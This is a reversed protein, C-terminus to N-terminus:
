NKNYIKKLEENLINRYSELNIKEYEKNPKLWIIRRGIVKLNISHLANEYLSLQLKYVSLPMDLLDNFPQLLKQEKFNKYLDVNTKYDLILLGSKEDNKGDLEADYYFLIDFTGAYGANEYEVFVKTEALIPVICKPIEEFFKVIAEEKPNIAKFGGNETLRETFNPLIKDYQGTMYYFASEGFEHTMTGNTCAENSIKNWCELIDDVTMHYYKSTEKDFNRNFTETALKVQDIHEQFRHAVNSVCEMEKGNLFYKHGDEVFELGKFSNLIKNRIENYKSSNFIDLWKDKNYLVRM